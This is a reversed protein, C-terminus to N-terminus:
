SVRRIKTGGAEWVGSEDGGYARFFFIRSPDNPDPVLDSVRGEALGVSGNKLTIGGDDSFFVGEGETGVFLRGSRRDVALATVVLSERSV